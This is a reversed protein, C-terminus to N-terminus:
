EDDVEMHTLYLLAPTARAATQEVAQIRVLFGDTLLRNSQRQAVTSPKRVIQGLTCQSNYLGAAWTDLFLSILASGAGVAGM